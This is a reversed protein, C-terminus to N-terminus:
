KPVATSWATTAAQSEIPELMHGRMKWIIRMRWHADDRKPFDLRYHAGRSEQRLLAAEAIYRSATLLARSELAERSLTQRSVPWVRLAAGLSHLSAGNREVSAMQWMLNRLAERDRLTEVSIEPVRGGSEAM